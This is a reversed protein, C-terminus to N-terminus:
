EGLMGSKLNKDVAKEGLWIGFLAEKFEQNDITILHKGNKSVVVVGAKADFSYIDGLKIEETFVGNFDEVEKEIRKLKSPEVTEFGEKLAEKLKEATIMKSIIDLKISMPEQSTIIESGSGSKNTVYLSGVYLKLFYKTRVGAGNLKLSDENQVITEKLDVGHVTKAATSVGIVMILGLMILKKKM